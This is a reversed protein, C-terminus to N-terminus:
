FFSIARSIKNSIDSSFLMQASECDRFHLSMGFKLGGAVRSTSLSLFLAPCLYVSLFPLSLTYTGLSHKYSGAALSNHANMIGLPICEPHQFFFFFLCKNQTTWQKVFYAQYARSFQTPVIFM